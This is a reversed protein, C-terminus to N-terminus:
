KHPKMANYYFGLTYSLHIDLGAFCLAYVSCIVFFTNFLHIGLTLCTYVMFLFTNFLQIDLTLCSYVM